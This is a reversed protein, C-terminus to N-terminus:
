NNKARFSRYISALLVEENFNSALGLGFFSALTAGAIIDAGTGTTSTIGVQNKGYKKQLIVILERLLFSKGSGAPGTFFINHGERVIKKIYSQEPNLKFNTVM